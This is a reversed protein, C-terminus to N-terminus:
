PKKAPPQVVVRQQPLTQQRPNVSLSITAGESLKAVAEEPTDAEIAIQRTVIFQM